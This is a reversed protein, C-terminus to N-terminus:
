KRPETADQGTESPREEILYKELRKANNREMKEIYLGLAHKTAELFEHKRILGNISKELYKMIHYPLFLQNESDNLM